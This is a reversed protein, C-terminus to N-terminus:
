DETEGHGVPKGCRIGLLFCTLTLSLFFVASAM